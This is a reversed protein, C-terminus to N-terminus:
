LVCRKLFQIKIREESSPTPACMRNPVNFLALRLWQIRLWLSVFYVEVL